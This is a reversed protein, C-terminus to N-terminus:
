ELTISDILLEFPEAKKNGYLFGLEAITNGSFNPLDLTPFIYNGMWNVELSNRYQSTYRIKIVIIICFFPQLKILENIMVFNKEM